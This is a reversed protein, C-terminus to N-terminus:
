IIKFYDFINDDLTYYDKRISHDQDNIFNLGTPDVEIIEYVDGKTIGYINDSAIAEFIMGIQFDDESISKFNM